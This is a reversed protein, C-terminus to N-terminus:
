AALNQVDCDAFNSRNVINDRIKWDRLISYSQDYCFLLCIVAAAHFSDYKNEILTWENVNKM